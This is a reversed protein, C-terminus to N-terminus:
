YHSPGSHRNTGWGLLMERLDLIQTLDIIAELYIPSPFGTTSGGNYTV